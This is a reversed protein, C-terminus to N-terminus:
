TGDPLEYPAARVTEISRDDIPDESVYLLEEKLDRVIEEKCWAAYSPHVGKSDLRQVDFAETGNNNYLRKKFSYRPAIDIRKDREL